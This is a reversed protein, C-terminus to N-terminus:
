LMLSGRPTQAPMHGKLKGAIIGRQTSVSVSLEGMEPHVQDCAKM